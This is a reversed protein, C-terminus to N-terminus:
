KKTWPVSEFNRNEHKNAKNPSLSRAPRELQNSTKSNNSGERTETSEQQKTSRWEKQRWFKKLTRKASAVLLWGKWWQNLNTNRNHYESSRKEPHQVPTLRKTQELAQQKNPSVKKKRNIKAQNQNLTNKRGQCPRRLNRKM